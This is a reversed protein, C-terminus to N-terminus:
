VHFLNNQLSTALQLKVTVDSENVRNNYLLICKIFLLM